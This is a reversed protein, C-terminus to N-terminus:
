VTLAPEACTERDVQSQGKHATVCFVKSKWTWESMLHVFFDRSFDAM